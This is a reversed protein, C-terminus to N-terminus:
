NVPRAQPQEPDFVIRGPAAPELGKPWLPHVLDDRLFSLHLADAARPAFPGPRPQILYRIRLGGPACAPFNCFWYNNYVWSAVFGRDRRLPRRPDGFTFGGFQWLVTDRAIIAVSGASGEVAAGHNALYHSRCSNPLQDREAMLWRDTSHYYFSDEGAGLDFPFALYFAQNRTCDAELWYDAEVELADPLLPDLRFTLSRLPSGTRHLVVAEGRLDHVREVAAPQGMLSREFAEDLWVSEFRADLRTFTQPPPLYERVPAGLAYERPDAWERGDALTRLSVVGARNPDVVVSLRDNALGVPADAALPTTTLALPQDNLKVVRREGAALSPIEVHLQPNQEFVRRTPERDFQYLMEDHQERAFHAMGKTECAARAPMTHDFPNAALVSPESPTAGRALATLHDRLLALSIGEATWHNIRIQAWQRQTDTCEPNGVSSHSGFTHECALAIEARARDMTLTGGSVNAWGHRRIAEVADLRRQARRVAAVEQPLAGQGFNWADVWDGEYSPLRDRAAKVQNMFGSLTTLRLELGLNRENFRRVQEAVCTYPGINEVTCVLSCAFDFPYEHPLGTFLDSLHAPLEEALRDWRCFRSVNLLGANWTVIDRDAPMRWRFAGPHPFPNTGLANNNIGMWLGDVGRSRMAEAYALSFGNVDNSMANTLTVGFRREFAALRDLEWRIDDATNHSTGCFRRAGADLQGRQFAAVMRAHESAPRHEVWHELSAFCEVTWAFRCPSPWDQTTECFDLARDLFRDHIEWAVVPDHTYGIDTHAMPILYLTKPINQQTSM